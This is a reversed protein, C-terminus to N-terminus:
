RRERERLQPLPDNRTLNLANRVVELVGVEGVEALWGNAASGEIAAAEIEALSILERHLAWGLQRVLEFTAHNRGGEGQKALSAKHRRLTAAALGCYRLRVPGSLVDTAAPVALLPPPARRERLWPKLAAALVDYLDGPALPLDDVATNFLTAATEWQYLGGKPHTSPPLAVMAQQGIIDVLGLGDRGILHRTKALAGPPLRYFTVFGRRGCRIVLPPPLVGMVAEIKAQDNSDIDIGILRNYGCCVGLGARPVRRSHAAVEDFSLPMHWFRAAWGTMASKKSAYDLPVPSYGLRLLLGANTAFPADAGLDVVTNQM